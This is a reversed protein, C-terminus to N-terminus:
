GTSRDRIELFDSIPERIKGPLKDITQALEDVNVHTYVEVMKISNWGGLQQLAFIDRNEIYHWTAWTHRCDHPTFNQIGARRCATKFATKIRTGASTDTFGKLPEYPAGRATRFIKGTRSPLESLVRVAESHLPVGRPKGNKTRPFTVHRRELDVCDWDLWLAEGVRAGTYFLFTLLPRLHPSACDILRRADAYRLWRKAKSSSKPRKIEIPKCMGARVAARMVASIPTYLQRKITAPKCNPYLTRAAQDITRQNIESLEITGFYNIIKEIFRIEGGNQLYESVAQAFTFNNCSSQDGRFYHDTLEQELRIRVIEAESRKDTGSSKDVVRGFVTGRIYWNPSNKRKCLKLPM